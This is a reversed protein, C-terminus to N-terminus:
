TAPVFEGSEDIQGIFTVYPDEDDLWPRSTRRRGLFPM